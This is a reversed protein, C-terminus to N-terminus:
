PLVIRKDSTGNYTHRRYPLDVGAMIKLKLFLGPITPAIACNRGGVTVTGGSQSYVLEQWRLPQGAFRETLTFRVVRFLLQHYDPLLMSIDNNINNASNGVNVVGGLVELTGTLLLDSGNDNATTINVTGSEVALRASSPISFSNAGANILTFTAAKNFHMTGNIM